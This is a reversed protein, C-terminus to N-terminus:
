GNAGRYQHPLRSLALAILDITQIGPAITLDAVIPTALAPPTVVVTSGTAASIDVWAMAVGFGPVDVKVYARGASVASAATAQWYYAGNGIEVLSGGDNAFAAGNIQSQLQSGTATVGTALAPPSSSDYITLPLRLKSPDTEGVSFCSGVFDYAIATLINAQTVVTLLFGATMAEAASAEYYHLRSENSVHGLSGGASVLTASGRAVQVAPAPSATDVSTALTSGDSTLITLPIRRKTPDTEGLNM